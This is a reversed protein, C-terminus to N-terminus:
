QPDSSSRHKEWESQRVAVPRVPPMNVSATREYTVRIVDADSGWGSTHEAAPAPLAVGAPDTDTRRYGHRELIRSELEVQLLVYEDSDAVWGLEVEVEAARAHTRTIQAVQWGQTVYELEALTRREAETMPAESEGVPREARRAAIAGGLAHGTVSGGISATWAAAITALDQSLDDSGLGFQGLSLIGLVIAQGGVLRVLVSDATIARVLAAPVFTCVALLLFALVAISEDSIHAAEYPALSAVLVGGLQAVVGAYIALRASKRASLEAAIENASRTNSM